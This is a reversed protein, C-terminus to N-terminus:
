VAPHHLLHLQERNTTYKASWRTIHVGAKEAVSIELSKSSSLVVSTYDKGHFSVEIQLRCPTPVTASDKAM